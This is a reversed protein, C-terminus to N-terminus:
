CPVDFDENADTETESDSDSCRNDASASREHQGVQEPLELLSWSPRLCLKIQEAQRASM